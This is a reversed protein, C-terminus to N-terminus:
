RSASRRRQKRLHLFGTKVRRPENPNFRSVFDSHTVVLQDKSLGPLECYPFISIIGNAM